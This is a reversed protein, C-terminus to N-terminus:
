EAARRAEQVLRLGPRLRRYDVKDLRCPHTGPAEVNIVRAAIPEFDARFHITSKIALIAQDKPEAGLARLVAQDMCQFRQSCIAVRLDAGTGLIRLMATPGLAVTVGGLMLGQCLINGDSLAEVRVRAPLPGGPDGYRGGLVLDLEAGLGAAHVREASPPDWLLALVAKQAGQDILERLLATTDSTAGAGANDQVDALVVPRGARGEAIAQRVAEGAPVLRSDFEAEVRLVDQLFSEAATEAADPTEGYAVVAPGCEFIDAPPFGAAFDVSLVGGRERAALSGYLSRCPELTTCQASLPMMFPLKRWAKAVPQKALLRRMLSVARRAAESMDVHPYTRYLTIADAHRVMAETVNAHLDLTTVVPVRPGVIARVRRLLEGEGDEHSEVVMAGHLDLLVGDLPGAEALGDCIRAAVREFAADEVPGCPEASCWLLPLLEWNKPAHQIFGGIPINLNGFVRLIERGEAMAPWGDPKVFDEYSAGFPAFTNSEHQFGAIAIRPRAM